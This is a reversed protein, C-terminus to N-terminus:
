MRGYNESLFSIIDYNNIIETIGIKRHEFLERGKDAFEGSTAPLRFKVLDVEFVSFFDPFDEMFIFDISDDM